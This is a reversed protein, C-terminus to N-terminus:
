TRGRQRVAEAVGELRREDEETIPIQIYFTGSRADIEWGLSNRTMWSIEAFPLEKVFSFPKMSVGRPIPLELGQAHIRLPSTRSLRRVEIGTLVALLLSLLGILVVFGYGTNSTLGM